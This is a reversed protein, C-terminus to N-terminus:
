EQPPLKRDWRIGERVLRAPSGAYVSNPRALRKSVYSQAGVVCGDPIASGKAVTVGEGLWVHKGVQVDRASNIRSNDALDYIPHEDSTRLYIGSSFMCDEGVLLAKGEMAFLHAGVMSTGNGISIKSGNQRLHLSGRLHCRAGIELLNGNGAFVIHMNRLVSREGIRLVNGNGEIKIVVSPDIQSSPHVDLVNDDGIQMLNPHEFQM